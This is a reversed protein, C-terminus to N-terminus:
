MQFISPGHLHTFRLTKDHSSVRKFACRGNGRIQCHPSVSQQFSVQNTEAAAQRSSILYYNLSVSKQPERWSSAEALIFDVALIINKLPVPQSPAAFALPPKNKESLGVATHPCCHEQRRYPSGVVGANSLTATSVGSPFPVCHQELIMSGNVFVEQAQETVHSPSQGRPRTLPLTGCKTCVFLVRGAMDVLRKHCTVIEGRVKSFLECPM